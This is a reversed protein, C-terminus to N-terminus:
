VTVIGQRGYGSHRLLCATLTVVFLLKHGLLRRIQEGEGVRM